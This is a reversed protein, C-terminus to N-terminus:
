IKNIIFREVGRNTTIKLLYKGTSLEMTSISINTQGAGVMIEKGDMGFISYNFSNECNITVFDGFPNPYVSILVTGLESLSAKSLQHIVGIGDLDLGGSEFSTPWPDNIRRGQSDKSSFDPNLSGVVDIIRVYRINYLNLASISDLDELDFPTGYGKKYKGALNHVRRCDIYSANSAQQATDIETYSPFRYFNSGNESVEVFALELIDDTFGNEFIAFDPGLDNIIPNSFHYTAVGSDGLSVVTYVDGEPQGLANGPEGFSALGQSKDAINRWGRQITVETGWSQFISSDKYIATSGIEGPKPAYSQCLAGNLLLIFFFLLSNSKM